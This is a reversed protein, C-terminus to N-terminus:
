CAPELALRVADRVSASSNWPLFHNHGELLVTTVCSAAAFHAQMFGVNAVPVLDDSTGHV